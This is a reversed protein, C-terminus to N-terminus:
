YVIFHVCFALYVIANYM